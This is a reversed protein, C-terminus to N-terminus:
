AHREAPDGVKGIQMHEVGGIGGLYFRKFMLNVYRFRQKDYGALRTASEFRVDEFLVEKLARLLNETCHFHAAVEDRDGIRPRLHLLHRLGIAKQM